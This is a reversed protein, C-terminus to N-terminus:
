TSCRVGHTWARVRVGTRGRHGWQGGGEGSAIDIGRGLLRRGGRDWERSDVPSTTRVRPRHHCVTSLMAGLIRSEEGCQEIEPVEGLM